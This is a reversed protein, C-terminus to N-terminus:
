EFVCDRFEAFGDLQVRRDGQDDYSISSAPGMAEGVGPYNLFQKYAFEFHVRSSHRGIM